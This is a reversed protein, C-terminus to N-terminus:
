GCGSVWDDIFDMIDGVTMEDDSNWDARISDASWDARDTFTGPHWSQLFDLIDGHTLTGNGDWDHPCDASVSAAAALVVAVAACYMRM